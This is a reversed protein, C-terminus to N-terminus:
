PRNPQITKVVLIFTKLSTWFVARFGFNCKPNVSRMDQLQLVGRADAELVSSALLTKTAKRGPSNRCPRYFYTAKPQTFTAPFLM